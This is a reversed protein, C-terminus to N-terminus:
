RENQRSLRGHNMRIAGIAFLLDLSLVFWDFSLRSAFEGRHERIDAWLRSVSKPQSLLHLVDAGIGLLSRDTPLHKTPLIM